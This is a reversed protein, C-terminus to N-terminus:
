EEVPVDYEDVDFTLIKDFIVYETRTKFPGKNWTKAFAYKAPGAGADKADYWSIFANIEAMSLDYEKELGNTMTITLIARGDTSPEPETVIEQLSVSAENSIVSTGNNNTVEVVYYYTVDTEVDNDTYTTGTATGLTEYPGGSTTSRKVIYNIADDVNDWYLNISQSNEVASAYLTIPTQVITLKEITGSMGGIVYINNNIIVTGFHKRAENLSPGTCYSDSQPNYIEVINTAIAGTQGLTGGILYIENGYKISGIADRAQPMDARNSYTDTEPDYVQVKKYVTAGYGGGFLYILNNYVIAGPQHVGLPMSKLTTWSDTSPNYKEVKTLNTASSSMGGFVYIENNHVVSSTGMRATPMSAKTTWTNTAPDYVEVTKYYTGTTTTLSSNSIGGIVYIKNDVVQATAFYRATSMSSLTTWTNDTPDYVELKKSTTGSEFGGIVYTKGDLEVVSAAPRTSTMPDQYVWSEGEAFAQGTFLNM